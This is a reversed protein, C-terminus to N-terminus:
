TPNPPLVSQYFLRSPSPNQRNRSRLVLIQEHIGIRLLSSMSVILFFLKFNSCQVLWTPSKTADGNPTEEDHWIIKRRWPGGGLYMTWPIAFGDGQDELLVTSVVVVIDMTIMISNDRIPLLLLLLLWVIGQKIQNRQANPPSNSTTNKYQRTVNRMM